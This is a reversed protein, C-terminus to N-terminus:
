VQKTRVLIWAELDSPRYRVMRSGVKVFPIQGRKRLTKQTGIKIRYIREVDAPTLLTEPETVDDLYCLTWEPRLLLETTYCPKSSSSQHQLTLDRAPEM